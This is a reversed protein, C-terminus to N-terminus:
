SSALKCFLVEVLGAAVALESHDWAVMSLLLAATFAGLDQRCRAPSPRSASTAARMYLASHFDPNPEVIHVALDFARLLESLERETLFVNCDQAFSQQLQNCTRGVRKGITRPACPCDEICRKRLGDEVM